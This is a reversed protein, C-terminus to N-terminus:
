NALLKSSINTAIIPSRVVHKGKSEIWSISGHVVKNKLMKPGEISLKYSQKEYKEKFVLRDPEVSIKLEEMQTFNAWYTSMEDGINTLTREFEQVTTGNAVTDNTNFYAIFSPYNLNLTSNSCDFSASRTITQIQNRTFNLACLLRIYDESSVNYVLGPNLAKNPNVHGAGLALPTAVQNQTGIDQIPQLSSDLFDSTTMMASRITAPNWDPHAQKLLAAVGALHPCAMSTGSLVNFDSFAQGDRLHSSPIDPPWAALIYDGPGMIDPKLIFPCSESPGRSSFRAVKPAPKTGIRTKEFEFRASKTENSITKMYNLIIEGNELNLYVAPFSSQLLFGLDSTNTIFVGGTVESSGVNQVQKRIQDEKDYCVVLKQGIKKLENISDCENMFVVPLDQRTTLDMNPYLSQGTLVVGNGLIVDGLFERDLTGAAVTLVWPTGNHLSKPYPGANGASTSVFIGKEMAAFTAIAVADEYLAYGSLGLSLSLVDVGDEIAQDIAALIDSSVAGEKFVAKYVAVRASPAIGRATGSAYGFYSVNNVYNGAATSSTHTGHGDTDRPSNMAISTNPNAALLGKNFYRAGVLKRNCLSSNFQLGVECQGKWKSPVESMGHDNFSESEPWIGTDVFGIIVDSGYNSRPWAGNEVNLGLFKSSYTTDLEVNTDRYSSVYGPFERVRQLESDSLIASFGHIVNSYTYIIRSSPLSSLVSEMYWSHPNTFPKPMASIDLHVIYSNSNALASYTFHSITIFILMLLHSPQSAM